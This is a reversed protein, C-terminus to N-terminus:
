PRTSISMMAVYTSASIGPSRHSGVTSSIMCVPVTHCASRTDRARRTTRSAEAATTASAM